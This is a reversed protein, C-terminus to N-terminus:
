HLFNETRGNTRVFYIVDGQLSSLDLEDDSSNIIEIGSLNIIQIKEHNPNYLTNQQIYYGRSVECPDLIVVNSHIQLGSKNELKIRYHLKGVKTSELSTEYNLEKGAEVEKCQVM